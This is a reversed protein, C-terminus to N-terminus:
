GSLESCSVQRRKRERQHRVAIESGFDISSTSIELGDDIMEPEFGAENVPLEHRGRM